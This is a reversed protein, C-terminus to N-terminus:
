FGNWCQPSGWAADPRTELLNPLDTSQDVELTNRALEEFLETDFDYRM